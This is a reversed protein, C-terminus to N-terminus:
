ELPFTGIPEVGRDSVLLVDPTIPYGSSKYERVVTTGVRPILEKSSFFYVFDRCPIVVYVPWGVKPKVIDKFNSSFVLSAKMVSDSDFMGLKLGDIPEVQVPIERLMAATNQEAIRWAQDATVSWAHLRDSTIWSIRSEDEAIYVLVRDVTDTATKRIVDGSDAISPEASVFIRSQATRWPPFASHVNLISDVLSRVSTLSGDRSANRQVNELSVTLETGAHEVVIRGDPLSRVIRVGRSEAERIFASRVDDANVDKAYPPASGDCALLLGLAAAVLYRLLEM